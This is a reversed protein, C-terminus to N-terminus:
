WIPARNVDKYYLYRAPSKGMAVFWQPCYPAMWICDGAAVPYWADDLRYVGLGELMLLGHEMIHTEVFPLHAGPQYNFVNVALDFSPLDPLLVQLSAAEDGLFPQGVIKKEQGVILAPEPAGALPVYKKVFFTLQTGERAHNLELPQGAPVFAYGGKGLEGAHADVNLELQGCVVFVFRENDDAPFFARGAQNFTVLFQTFGAGMAPSILIVTMANEIGPVTSPVHGDPAILAHRAGVSTRTNGFVMENAM